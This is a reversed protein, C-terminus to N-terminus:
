LLIQIFNIAKFGQTNIVLCIIYYYIIYYNLIYCFYSIDMLIWSCNILLSCYVIVHHSSFGIFYFNIFPFHVKEKLM